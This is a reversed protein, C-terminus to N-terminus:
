SRIRDVKLRSNKATSEPCDEFGALRSDFQSSSKRQGNRRATSESASDAVKGIRGALGTLCVPGGGALFSPRFLRPPRFLPHGYPNRRPVSAGM